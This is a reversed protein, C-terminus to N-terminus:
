PSRNAGAAELGRLLRELDSRLQTFKGYYLCRHTSVDFHLSEGKRALFIVPRGHGWAYGVELYVNPRAGSLDAIVISATEIAQRIRLLIDGTFHTEDVKECIFGCNRVAPYIGFEYVNEFEDSYPMAVFVRKKELPAGDGRDLGGSGAQVGPSPRDTPARRGTIERADDSDAAVRQPRKFSALAALLTRQERESLTLFVIRELALPPAEALGEEFGRILCQLSEGSDLGYGPGHVTTTVTRVPLKEQGVIGIFERAFKQMERYGFEFLRPTGLFMVRSPAIVGRTEVLKFRAPSVALDSDACIGSALLRSAIAGDAGYFKQAHKLLLLDSEVDAVDGIRVEYQLSNM